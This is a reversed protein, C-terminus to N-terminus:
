GWPRIHFCTNRFTAYLQLIGKAFGLVVVLPSQWIDQVGEKVQNLLAVASPREAELTVWAEEPIQEIAEEASSAEDPFQM